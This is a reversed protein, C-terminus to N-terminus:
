PRTASWASSAGHFSRTWSARRWRDVDVLAAAVAGPSVVFPRCGGVRGRCEVGSQGHWGTTLVAGLFLTVFKRFVTEGFGVSWASFVVQLAGPVTEM